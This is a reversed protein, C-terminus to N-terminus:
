GDKFRRIAQVLKGGSHIEDALLDNYLYVMLGDAPSAAVAAVAAEFEAAPISPRRRGAAFAPGLYDARVQLDALLTRSTRPRIEGTVAAVWPVPDRRLIQHYLMLEFHDVVPSLSEVRQGLVEEVANSYDARGFGFGNLMVETGSRARQAAARLRSVVNAILGCKWTTWVDRLENQLISSRLAVSGEPLELGTEDQFRELCRKCFCYEPIQSRLTEPMWLEWFGPYRIFSLFIGDPQLQDVAEEIHAEREALYGPDSPCLGVYWGQPEAIRGTEDVPRLEPRRQYEAPQFFVATSEFVRIGRDGLADRLRRDDYGSEPVVQAVASTPLPDILNQVLMWDIGHDRARNALDVETMGLSTHWDFGYNKVAVLKNM